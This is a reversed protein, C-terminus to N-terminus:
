AAGQAPRKVAEEQAHYLEIGRGAAWTVFGDYVTDEDAGVPVLELLSSM